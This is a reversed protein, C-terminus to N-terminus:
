KILGTKGLMDGENVLTNRILVSSCGSDRLVNVKKQNVLGESVPWRSNDMDLRTSQPESKPTIVHAILVNSVKRTTCRNAM